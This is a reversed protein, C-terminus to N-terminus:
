LPRRPRQKASISKIVLRGRRATDFPKPAQAAAQAILAAIAPRDIDAAKQLRLHRVQSGSGNLVGEPDALRAGWLFALSVWRPYLVISLIAESARETPGFGIVLANYNDYVMEVAGPLHARVKRQTSRALAVIDPTYKCLFAALQKNPAPPAKTRGREIERTVTAPMPRCGCAKAHARHWRVRHQLSARAPMPHAKHWAADLAMAFWEPLTM